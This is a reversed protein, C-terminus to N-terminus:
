TVCASMQCFGVPLGKATAGEATHGESVADVGEKHNRQKERQPFVRIPPVIRPDLHGFTM